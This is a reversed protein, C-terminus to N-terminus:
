ARKELKSYVFDNYWNELNKKFPWMWFYEASTFHKIIDDRFRANRVQELGYYEAYARLSEEYAEKEFKMRYYAFMTPLPVFLYLLSFLLRGHRRAQRMHVREHRLIAMRSTEPMSGWKSTVYVTTGVTTIFQTMFADMQGFTIIKLFLAIAKMLRSDEKKVVKFTPFELKIETHLSDFSQNM